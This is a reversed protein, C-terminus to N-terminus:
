LTYNMNQKIEKSRDWDTIDSDGLEANCTKCIIVINEPELELEPYKSRPKVHHGELKKSVIIGYKILCRQCVAGYEELKELRLKRWKTSNYFDDNQGKVTKEEKRRKYYCSCKKGYEYKELCHSCTKM